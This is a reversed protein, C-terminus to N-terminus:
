NDRALGLFFYNKREYAQYILRLRRRLNLVWFFRPDDEVTGHDLQTHCDKCLLRINLKFLRWFKYKKKSLIHAFFFVSFESLRESCVECEHEREAWIEKFVRLEGTAM